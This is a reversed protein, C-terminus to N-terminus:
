NKFIHKPLAIGLEWASEYISSIEDEVSRGFTNNGLQGIMQDDSSDKDLTEKIDM